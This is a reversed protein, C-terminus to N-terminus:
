KNKMEKETLNTALKKHDVNPTFHWDSDLTSQMAMSGKICGTQFGEKYGALFAHKAWYYSENEYRLYEEALEEPTKM